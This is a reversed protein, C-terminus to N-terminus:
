SIFGKVSHCVTIGEMKFNEDHTLVVNARGELPRGTPMSELTKRGMVIVKGYTEQRFLQRDEPISVIQDNGKGIAWNNDVLVILNM